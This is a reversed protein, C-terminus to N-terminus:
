HLNFSFPAISKTSLVEFVIKTHNAVKPLLCWEEGRYHVKHRDMTIVNLHWKEKPSGFPLGLVKTAWIKRLDFKNEFISPLIKYGEFLNKWRHIAHKLSLENSGQKWPTQPQSDFEWNSEQKKLFWLEHLYPRFSFHSSMKFM